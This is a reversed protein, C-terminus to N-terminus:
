GDICCRRDVSVALAVDTRAFATSDEVCPRTERVRYVLDLGDIIAAFGSSCGLLWAM